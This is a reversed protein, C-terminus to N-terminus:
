QAATEHLRWNEVGVELDIVDRRLLNGANDYVYGIRYKDGYVASVLRGANDYEFVVTGSAPYNAQAQISPPKQVFTFAAISVFVIVAFVALRTRHILM